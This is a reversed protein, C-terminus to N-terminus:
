FGVLIFVLIIECCGIWGEGDECLAITPVTVVLFKYHWLCM